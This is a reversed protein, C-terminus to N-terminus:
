DDDEDECDEDCNECNGDCIEEEEEDASISLMFNIGNYTDKINSIFGMGNTTDVFRRELDSKNM